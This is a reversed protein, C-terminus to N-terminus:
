GKSGIQMYWTLRPLPSVGLNSIPFFANLAGDCAMTLIKYKSALRDMAIIWPEPHDAEHLIGIHTKVNTNNFTANELRAMKLSAAQGTTIEGGQHDLILNSKLRIRYQWGAQQCWRIMASTGYFRDASLLTPIGEPIMDGVRDLLPKQEVFGIAGSTAIVELSSPYGKRWYAILGDLM